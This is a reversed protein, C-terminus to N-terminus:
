NNILYKVVTSIYHGYFNVKNQLYVANLIFIKHKFGIITTQVGDAIDLTICSEFLSNIKIM